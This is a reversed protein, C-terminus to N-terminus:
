KGFVTVALWFTSQGDDAGHCPLSVAVRGLATSHGNSTTKIQVDAGLWGHAAIHATM